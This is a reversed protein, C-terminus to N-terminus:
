YVLYRTDRGRRKSQRRLHAIHEPLSTIGDRVDFRLSADVDCGVHTAWRVTRKTENRRKIPQSAEYKTSSPQNLHPQNFVIPQLENPSKQNTSISRLQDFITSKFTASQLRNTPSRSHEGCQKNPSKQNTSITPTVHNILSPQNLIIPQLDDTSSSQDLIPIHNITCSRNSSPRPRTTPATALKKKTHLLRTQITM